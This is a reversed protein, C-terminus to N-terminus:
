PEPEQGSFPLNGALWDDPPVTYKLNVNNSSHFHPMLPCTMYTAVSHQWSM